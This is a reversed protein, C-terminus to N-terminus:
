GRTTYGHNTRRRREGYINEAPPNAAAERLYGFECICARGPATNGYLQITAPYTTQVCYDV